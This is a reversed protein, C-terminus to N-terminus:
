TARDRQVPPLRCSCGSSNRRLDSLRFSGTRPLRLRSIAERVGEPTRVEFWQAVAFLFVVSVAEPRADLAVAGAVAIWLVNAVGAQHLIAATGGVALVAGGVAMLRRRVCISDSVVPEDHELWMRMGTQGL